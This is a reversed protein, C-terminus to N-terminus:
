PRAKWSGCMRWWAWRFRSRSNAKRETHRPLRTGAAMKWPLVTGLLAGLLWSLPPYFVFRPEGFGYNAWEAWRPYFIGEHWQRSVDLWSALHFQFDHGSASGLFFFPAIVASAALSVFLLARWAASADRSAAPQSIKSEIKAAMLLSASLEGTRPYRIPGLRTVLLRSAKRPDM